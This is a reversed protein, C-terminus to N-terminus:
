GASTYHASQAPGLDPVRQMGEKTAISCTSKYDNYVSKCDNYVTFQMSLESKYDNYVTFQM